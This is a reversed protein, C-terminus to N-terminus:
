AVEAKGVEDGEGGAQRIRDRLDEDTNKRLTIGTNRAPM